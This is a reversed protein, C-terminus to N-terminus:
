NTEREALIRKIEAVAQAETTITGIAICETGGNLVTSAERSLESGHGHGWHGMDSESQEICLFGFTRFIGAHCLVAAVGDSRMPMEAEKVKVRSLHRDGSRRQSVRNAYLEVRYGAEELIDTLVAAAAGQWFLEEATQGYHGGWATEIAVTQPAVFPRRRMTRWCQDIQGGRLRDNCVEDGEDAWTLKRRISKAQPVQGALKSALARLREAGEPWGNELMATAEKWNHLGGMWESGYHEFATRLMLKRVPMNASPCDKKPEEALEGLNLAYVTDLGPVNSVHELRPM